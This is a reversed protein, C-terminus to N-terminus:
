ERHVDIVVSEIPGNRREQELREDLVRRTVTEGTAPAAAVDLDRDEPGSAVHQGDDDGVVADPSEGVILSPCPSVTM